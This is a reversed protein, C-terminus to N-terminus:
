RADYTADQVGQGEADCYVVGSNGKVVDVGSTCFNAGSKTKFPHSDSSLHNLITSKGGRAKGCITVTARAGRFCPRAEEHVTLTEARQTIFQKSMSNALGRVAPKLLQSQESQEGGPPQHFHLHVDQKVSQDGGKVEIDTNNTPKFHQDGGAITTSSSPSAESRGEEPAYTRQSPM